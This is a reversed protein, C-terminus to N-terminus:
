EDNSRLLSIGMAGLLLPLSADILIWVLSQTDAGIATFKPGYYYNFYNWFFMIGVFLLGYFQINAALYERTIADDGAVGKKRIYGFILGLIISLVMLPNLISWFSSYLQEDTSVHYLPEVVTHIAVAVGVILLIAGVIQKLM